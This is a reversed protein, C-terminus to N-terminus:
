QSLWRLQAIKEATIKMGLHTLHAGDWIVSGRGLIIIRCASGDANCYLSKRDRYIAGHKAAWAAAVENGRDFKARRSKSVLADIQEQTFPKDDAAIKYAISAMDQFGASGLIVLNKNVGRVANLFTGVSEAKDSDRWLFSLFVLDGQRLSDSSLLAEISRQCAPKLAADLCDTPLKLLRFEDGAFLERYNAFAAALDEGTSDGVVLIKRASTPPFASGALYDTYKEYAV